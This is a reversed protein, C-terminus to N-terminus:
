WTRASRWAWVNPLSDRAIWCTPWKPRSGRGPPAAQGGRERRDRATGCPRGGLASGRRLGAGPGLAGDAGGTRNRGSAVHVTLPRHTGAQPAGM